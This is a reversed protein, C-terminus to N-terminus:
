TVWLLHVFTLKLNWESKSKEKEAIVGNRGSCSPCRLFSWLAASIVGGNLLLSVVLFFGSVGKRMVATRFPGKYYEVGLLLKVANSIEDM